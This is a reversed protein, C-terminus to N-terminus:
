LRDGGWGDCGKFRRSYSVKGRRTCGEAYLFVFIVSRCDFGFIKRMNFGLKIHWFNRYLKQAYVLDKFALIFVNRITKM